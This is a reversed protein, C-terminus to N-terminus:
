AAPADGEPGAARELARRWAELRRLAAAPAELFPDPAAAVAPLAPSVPAGSAELRHTCTRRHARFAAWTAARAGCDLCTYSAFLEPGAGAFPAQAFYGPPLLRPM